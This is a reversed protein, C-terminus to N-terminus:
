PQIIVRKRSFLKLANEVEALKAELEQKAARRSMTEVRLPFASLENLIKTHDAAVFSPVASVVRLLSCDHAVAV